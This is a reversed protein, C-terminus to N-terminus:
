PGLVKELEVELKEILRGMITATLHDSPCGAIERARAQWDAEPDAQILEAFLERVRANQEETPRQAPPIPGEDPQGNNATEAVPM